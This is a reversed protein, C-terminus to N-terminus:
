GAQTESEAAMEDLFERSRELDEALRIWTRALKAIHDRGRRTASTQALQVCLARSDMVGAKAMAEKLDPSAVFDKAKNTDDTDFLIVM